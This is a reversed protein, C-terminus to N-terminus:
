IPLLLGQGTHKEFTFSTQAKTVQNHRAIRWSRLRAAEHRLHSLIRKHASQYEEFTAHRIHKFGKNGSIAFDTCLGPQNGSARLSRENIQFRDCLTQTSIWQNNALLFIEIQRSLEAHDSPTTM